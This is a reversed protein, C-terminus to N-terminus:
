WPARLWWPQPPPPEIRTRFTEWRLGCRLTELALVDNPAINALNVNPGFRLVFYSQQQPQPAEWVLPAAPDIQGLLTALREEVVKGQADYIGVRAGSERGEVLIWNAGLEWDRQVQAGLTALDPQHEPDKKGVETIVTLGLDRARAIAEARATAPLELSGDSIEVATFGLARARALYAAMVGRFYAYEFLTGGPLVEVGFERILAIKRRLLGEDLLVSTGFSLKIFDVYEGALELFDRTASLGLMRDLVLTIGTTRPKASREAGVGPLTEAWAKTDTSLGPVTPESM